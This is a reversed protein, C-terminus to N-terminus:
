DAELPKPHEFLLTSSIRDLDLLSGNNPRSLTNQGNCQSLELVKGQRDALYIGSAQGQMRRNRELERLERPRALREPISVM